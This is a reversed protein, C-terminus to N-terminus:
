KHLQMYRIDTELFHQFVKLRHIL